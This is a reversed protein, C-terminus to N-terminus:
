GARRLPKPFPIPPRTQASRLAHDELVARALQSSKMGAQEARKQMSRVTSARVRVAVTVYEGTAWGSQLPRPAGCVEAEFLSRVFVSPEKQVARAQRSIVGFVTRCLKLSLVQYPDDGRASRANSRGQM